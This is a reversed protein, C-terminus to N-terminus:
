SHFHSICHKKLSFKLVDCWTGHQDKNVGELSLSTLLLSIDHYTVQILTQVYYMNWCPTDTLSDTLATLSVLLSVVGLKQNRWISQKLSLNLLFISSFFTVVTLYTHTHFNHFTLNKCPPYTRIFAFSATAKKQQVKEKCIYIICPTNKWQAEGSFNFNPFCLKPSDVNVYITRSVGLRAKSSKLPSGTFFFFRYIHAIKLIPLLVDLYYLKTKHQKKFSKTRPPNSTQTIFSARLSSGERGTSPGPRWGVGSRFTIEFIVKVNLM